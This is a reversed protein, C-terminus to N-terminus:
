NNKKWKQLNEWNEKLTRRTERNLGAYFSINEIANMIVRYPDEDDENFLNDANHPLFIHVRDILIDDGGFSDEFSLAQIEEYTKYLAKLFDTKYQQTFYNQFSAPYFQRIVKEITEELEQSIRKFKRIYIEKPSQIRKVVITLGGNLDRRVDYVEEPYDKELKRRWFTESECLIKNNRQSSACFKILDVPSLNLAMEQLVDKPLSEM